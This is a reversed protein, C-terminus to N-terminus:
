GQVNTGVREAWTNWLQVLQEVKDPYQNGLDNMETRDAEMDYLEWERQHRLGALKWKGMRVARNGGHDWFLARHGTRQRGRFTPLLSAGELPLVKRGEYSSPYTVGTADLCTAMIDIVHGAQDSATTGPEIVAPWSAIAPTAIGGEHSTGKSLRFPTNSVNAWAKGYSCFTDASGPVISPLNGVRLGSMQNRSWFRNLFKSGVNEASAGNDSLFFVLTNNEVGAKELAEVIRGVGRDMCDVQAAYVSMRHAEWQKDKVDQWASVGQARPPLEWRPDVLGMEIMRRHREARMKDWGVDYVSSYKAIDEPRAHLPWHPAIYSVYLFFPKGTQAPKEIFQVAYDTLADTVFFGESPVAFPKDDLLFQSTETEQFYHAPGTVIWGFFQDFGRETPTQKAHWKGVMSTTYGGERLAEAITVCDAMVAAGGHCGTQHSYLGSLLSARTPACKACNHFQTFRMGVQGLRDLNPTSIESGYCGLDSYGMDDAMILVINPRSASVKAQPNCSQNLFLAAGALTDRLFERRDSKNM